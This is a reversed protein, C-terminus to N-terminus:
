ETVPTNTVDSQLQRVHVTTNWHFAHHIRKIYRNCSSDKHVMSNIISNGAKYTCKKGNHLSRLKFYSKIRGFM